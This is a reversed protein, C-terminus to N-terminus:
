LIAFSSHTTSKRTEKEPRAIILTTCVREKKGEQKTEEVCLILSITYDVLSTRQSTFSDNGHGLHVDTM